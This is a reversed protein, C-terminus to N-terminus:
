GSHGLRRRLGRLGLWVGGVVVPTALALVTGSALPLGAAGDFGKLVYGLLGVVYYSIAVVSLGEVTEQLRLQLRARRDMSALLAQNQAELQVNVRTRLLDANRAIRRSLSERREEVSRCTRMAPEFRRALFQGLPQYGEIREEGLAALRDAVIEAYARAAGFRYASETLLREAEAALRVLADLLRREDGQDAVARAEAAIAALEQEMRSILPAEQRAVPLALLAMMRYTDLEVLRQVLRGARSPDLGGGLLDRVLFRNFGDGHNRFDTWVVAAGGMVRSGVVRQGEFLVGIEEADREPWEPPEVVVHCAAHVEGRLGALWDGPVLDVANRAFPVEFPGGLLFSYTSFETHREWRLELEGGGLRVAYHLAGDPPPPASHRRCLEAIYRREVEAAAEGTVLALHSVRHPARLEPHPRNHIEDALTARLPHDALHQVM